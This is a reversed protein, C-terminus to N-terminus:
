RRRVYSRSREGAYYGVGGVVLSAVVGVGPAVAAGLLCSGGGAVVAVIGAATWWPHRTAFKVLAAGQGSLTYEGPEAPMIIDRMRAGCEPCPGAESPRPEGCEACTADADGGEESLASERRLWAYATFAAALVLGVLIEPADFGSGGGLGRVIEAGSAFALTAGALGPLLLFSSFAGSGEDRPERPAGDIEHLRDVHKRYPVKHDALFGVLAASSITLFVLIVPRAVKVDVLLPETYAATLLAGAIVFYWGVARYRAEESHKLYAWKERYEAQRRTDFELM